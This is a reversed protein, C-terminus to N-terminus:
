GPVYATLLESLTRSQRALIEAKTYLPMRDGDVPLFPHYILSSKALEEDPLGTAGLIEDAYYPALVILIKRPSSRWLDSPFATHFEHDDFVLSVKSPDSDIAIVRNGFNSFISVYHTNVGWVFVVFGANRLEGLFDQIASIRAMVNDVHRRAIRFNALFDGADGVRVDIHSSSPRFIESDARKAAVLAHGMERSCQRKGSYLIDMGHRAVLTELSRSSFHHQHEYLLGSVDCDYEDTVPVEIVLIGGASLREVLNNLLVSLDVIHEFVFYATILNFKEVSCNGSYQGYIVDETSLSDCLIALDEHFTLRSNSGFDLISAEALTRGSLRLYEDLVRIRKTSSYDESLHEVLDTYYATLWETTPPERNYIHGCRGCFAWHAKFIYSKHSKTFRSSREIVKEIVSQNQEATCVPCATVIGQEVYSVMNAM